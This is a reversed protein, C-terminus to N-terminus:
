FTKRRVFTEVPLIVGVNDLLHREINGSEDEIEVVKFGPINVKSLDWKKSYSKYKKHSSNGFESRIHMDFTRIQVEFLNNKDDAFFLHIGQYGNNKPTFVYNKMRSVYVEPIGTTDPLFVDPNGEKFKLVAADDNRDIVDKIEDPKCLTYGKEIFHEIIIITAKEVYDIMEQDDVNSNTITLRFRHIDKYVSDISKNKRQQEELKEIFSKLAKKNGDLNFHMSPLGKELATYLGNFETRHTAILQKNHISKNYFRLATIKEMIQLDSNKQYECELYHIYSELAETLSSSEELFKIINNM